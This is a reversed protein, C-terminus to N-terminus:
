SLRDTVKITARARVRDRDEEQERRDEMNDQTLGTHQKNILIVIIRSTYSSTYKPCYLLRENSAGTIKNGRFGLGTQWVSTCRSDDDM